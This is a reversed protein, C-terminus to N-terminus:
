QKILKKFISNESYEIKLIYIGNILNSLDMSNTNTHSVRTSVVKGDLSYITALFEPCSSEITLKDKVPNPYIRCVSNDTIENVKDPSIIHLPNFRKKAFIYWSATSVTGKTTDLNVFEGTRNLAYPLAKISKGYLNYELLLPDFQNGYFNGREQNGSYYQSCAMHGIGETWINNINIDPYPYFGYISDVDKIIKKRYRFDFEPIKLLTDALDGFAMVRWTYNDLPRDYGTLNKNVWNKIKQSYVIEGCAKLAAYCDINGEDHCTTDFRIDGDQWGTQICGCDDETNKYYSIILDRLLNVVNNYQSKTGYIQEYQKYAILLWAMDGIWRDELSGGRNYNKINMQQYFGRPQNRYYFSQKEIDQNYPGTASAYFDLIREAREKQDSVLFSMAALSSNFTSVLDSGEQNPLVKADASSFDQLVKLYELVLTDKPNVTDSRRQYFGSGSSERFPDLFFGPMIGERGLGIEDIWVTGSGQNVASFSIEFKSIKGFSKDGGWVYFTNKRYVVIQTWDPYRNKIPYRILFVSGDEDTFKLEIDSSADAKILMIVPTNENFGKVSDYSMTIWASSFPDKHLTYNVKIGDGNQGNFTTLHITSSDNHYTDWKLISDWNKSTLYDPFPIILEGKETQCYSCITLVFGLITLINQKKTTMQILSELINWILLNVRPIQM